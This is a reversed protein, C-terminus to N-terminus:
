APFADVIARGADDINELNSVTEALRDAQAHTAGLGFELCARFKAFLEAESMPEGPSGKITDSSGEVVRGSKLTVKVRAPEIATADIAPDSIVKTVRTLAAIRPDTIASKQYTELDVKGDAIARAFGYAANFQAHVVSDRSVDYPEGVTLWNVDGMRIEIGEIDDARVGQGHLGIGLGIATHNCRCCPFPKFSYEPIRWDTGLGEMLLDVKVEGREYLAFLGANGELTRRTGTLGDAALFAGVVANRAAFGAGMRKSLVGDRMSQASGATQHYAM